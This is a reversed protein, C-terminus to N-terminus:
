CAVLYKIFMQCIQVLKLYNLYKAIKSINKVDIDSPVDCISSPNTIVFHYTRLYGHLKKNGNGKQQEIIKDCFLIVSTLLFRKASLSDPTKCSVATM